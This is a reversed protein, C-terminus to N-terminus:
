DSKVEERSLVTERVHEIIGKRGKMWERCEQETGETGVSCATAQWWEREEVPEPLIRAVLGAEIAANLICTVGKRVEGNWYIDALIEAVDDALKDPVDSSKIM